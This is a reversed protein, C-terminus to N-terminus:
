QAGLAVLRDIVLDIDRETTRYNAICARIGDQGDLVVPGLLATGEEVLSRLVTRNNAGNQFRFCVATLNVPAM